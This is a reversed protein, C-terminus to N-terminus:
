VFLGHAQGANRPGHALADRVVVAVLTCETFIRGGTLNQRFESGRHVPALVNQALELIAVATRLSYALM